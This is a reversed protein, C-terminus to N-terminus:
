IPPKALGPGKTPGLEPARQTVSGSPHSLPDRMNVRVWETRVRPSSVRLIMEGVLLGRLEDPSVVNDLKDRLNGGLGPSMTDVKETFEKYTMNGIYDACIQAAEPEGQKMIM